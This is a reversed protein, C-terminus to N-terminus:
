LLAGLISLVISFYNKFKHTSENASTRFAAANARESRLVLSPPTPPPPTPSEQEARLAANKRAVQQSKFQTSAGHIILTSIM